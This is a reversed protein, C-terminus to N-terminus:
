SVPTGTTYINELMTQIAARDGSSQVNNSLIIEAIKGEFYNSQNYNSALDMISSGGCGTNGSSTDSQSVSSDPSSKPLFVRWYARAKQWPKVAEHLSYRLNSSTVLGGHGQAREM